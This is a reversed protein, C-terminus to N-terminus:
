GRVRMESPRRLPRGASRAFPSCELCLLTMSALIGPCAFGALLWVLLTLFAQYFDLVMQADVWTTNM